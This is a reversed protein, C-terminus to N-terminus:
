KILWINTICDILQQSWYLIMAMLAPGQSTAWSPHVGNDCPQENKGHQIAYSKTEDKLENLFVWEHNFLNCV